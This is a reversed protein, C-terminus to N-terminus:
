RRAWCWGCRRRAQPGVAPFLDKAFAAGVQFAAMAAVTAALPLVIALRGEPAM